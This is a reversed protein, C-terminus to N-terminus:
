LDGTHKGQHHVQTHTTPRVREDATLGTTTLIHHLHGGEM